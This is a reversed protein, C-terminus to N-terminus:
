EKKVLARAILYVHGEPLVNRKFSTEFVGSPNDNTDSFSWDAPSASVPEGPDAYIDVEIVTWGPNLEYKVSFTYGDEETAVVNFHVAGVLTGSRMDDTRAGAYLPFDYQHRVIPLDLNFIRIIWGWESLMLNDQGSDAPRNLLPKFVFGRVNGQDVFPTAYAEQLSPIGNQTGNDETPDVLMVKQHCGAALLLIGSIAALGCIHVLLNQKM